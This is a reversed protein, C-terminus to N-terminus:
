KRKQKAVFYLMLAPILVPLGFILAPRIEKFNTVILMYVMLLFSSALMFYIGAKKNMVALVYGGVALLLFIMLPIQSYLGQTMKIVCESVLFILFFASIFFGIFLATYKIFKILKSM